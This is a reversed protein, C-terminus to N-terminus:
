SRHSLVLLVHIGTAVLLLVSLSAHVAVWARMRRRLSQAFDVSDRQSILQAFQDANQRSSTDLYRNLAALDGLLQHRKSKSPVVTFWISRRSEFYKSLVDHYHQRLVEGAETTEIEGCVNVAAWQITQPDGQQGGSLRIRKPYSRSAYIGYFGSASVILFSSSLIFELMGGAVIAPVHLVYVALSFIGTYLHTQTWGAMSGLRIGPMRRRGGLAVLILLSGLLAGGTLTSPRGLGRDVWGAAAIIAVIAIATMVISKRRRALISVPPKAVTTASVANPQITKKAPKSAFNSASKVQSKSTVVSM